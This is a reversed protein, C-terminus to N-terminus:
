RVDVVTLDDTSAILDRAEEVTVDTHALALPGSVILLVGALLLVTRLNVKMVTEGGSLITRLVGSNKLNAM